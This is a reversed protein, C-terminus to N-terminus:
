HPCQQTIPAINIPAITSSSLFSLIGAESLEVQIDYLSFPLAEQIHNPQHCVQKINHLSHTLLTHIFGNDANSCMAQIFHRLLAHNM